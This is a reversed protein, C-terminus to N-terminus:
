FNHVRQDRRTMCQIIGQRRIRLNTWLQVFLPHDLECVAKGITAERNFVHNGFLPFNNGGPRKAACVFTLEPINGRGPFLHRYLSDRNVEDCVPLNEIRVSSPVSQAQHSLETLSRGECFDSHCSSRMASLAVVLLISPIM